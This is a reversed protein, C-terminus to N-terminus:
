YSPAPPKMRYGQVRWDPGNMYLNKV